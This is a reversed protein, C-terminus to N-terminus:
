ALLDEDVDVEEFCKAVWAFAQDELVAVYEDKLFRLGLGQGAVEALAHREGGEPRHEATRAGCARRRRNHRLSSKDAPTSHGFCVPMQDMRSVRQLNHKCIPNRLRVGDFPGLIARMLPHM